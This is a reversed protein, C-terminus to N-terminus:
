HIVAKLLIMAIGFAATGFAGLIRVLWSDGRLAFVTFGLVFLIAVGLWLATWIAVTDDIAQLAGLLLVLSPPVASTLFGISRRLAHRFSESLSTPAAPDIGHGAITGAYVHAAWFVIVAVLVSVFLQMSTTGHSGSAVIVASVLVTGYVSEETIYEVRVRRLPDTRSTM